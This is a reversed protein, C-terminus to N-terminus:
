KIIVNYNNENRKFNIRDCVDIILLLWNTIVMGTVKKEFLFSLSFFRQM